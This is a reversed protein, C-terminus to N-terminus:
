LGSSETSSHGPDIPFKLLMAGVMRLIGFVTFFAAFLLTWALAGAVPHTIVLFGILIGLLGGILHLFVGQWTRVYFSQVAEIIGSIITIWGFIMVGALTAAPAFIFYVLGLGIFVMGLLLVWLWKQHVRNLDSVSSLTAM